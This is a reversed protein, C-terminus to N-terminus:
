QRVEVQFSDTWTQNSAETFVVTFTVPGLPMGSPLSLGSLTLVPWKSAEGSKLTTGYYGAVNTCDCNQGCPETGGFQSPDM